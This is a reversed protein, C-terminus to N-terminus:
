VTGLPRGHTAEWRVQAEARRGYEPEWTALDVAEHLPASLRMAGRAHPGQVIEVGEGPGITTAGLRVALARVDSTPIRMPVSHITLRGSSGVEVGQVFREDRMADMVALYRGPARPRVGSQVLLALSSVSSMAIGRARAIGKALSAGVRLSTFSGPGAGCIVALLDGPGIRARRLLGDIAPLLLEGNAGRTAADAEAVADPEDPRFLACSAAYTSSEIALIHRATM